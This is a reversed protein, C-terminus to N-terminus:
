LSSLDVTEFKIRWVEPNTNFFLGRDKYIKNWLDEYASLASSFFKEKTANKDWHHGIIIPSEQGENKYGWFDLIGEAISQRETIDHLHEVFVGVNRVVRNPIWKPMFMPPRWEISSADGEYDARYIAHSRDGKRDPETNNGDSDVLIHAGTILLYDGPKGYRCKQLKGAANYKM